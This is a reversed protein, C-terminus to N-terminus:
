HTKLVIVDVHFISFYGESQHVHIILSVGGKKFVGNVMEMAVHRCVIVQECAILHHRQANALMLAGTIQSIRACLQGPRAETVGYM